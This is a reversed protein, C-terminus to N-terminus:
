ANFSPPPGDDHDRDKEWNKESREKKKVPEDVEEKDEVASSTSTLEAALEIEDAVRQIERAVVELPTNGGVEEDGTRPTSAEGNGDLSMGSGEAAVLVMGAGSRVATGLLAGMIGNKLDEAYKSKIRKLEREIAEVHHKM